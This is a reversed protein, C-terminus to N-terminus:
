RGKGQGRKRSSIQVISHPFRFHGAKFNTLLSIIETEVKKKQKIISRFKNNILSVDDAMNQAHQHVKQLETRILDTSLSPFQAIDKIFTSVSQVLSQMKELLSADMGVDLQICSKARRSKSKNVTTNLITDVHKAIYKVILEMNTYYAAAEENGSSKEVQNRLNQLQTIEIDLFHKSPVKNQVEEAIVRSVDLFSNQFSKVQM